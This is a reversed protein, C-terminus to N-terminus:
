NTLKSFAVRIVTNGLLTDMKTLDPRKGDLRFQLVEIGMNELSQVMRGKVNPNELFSVFVLKSPYM